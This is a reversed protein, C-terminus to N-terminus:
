QKVFPIIKKVDEYKVELFYSAKQSLDYPIFIENSGQKISIDEAKYVVRGRQDIIAYSFTRDKTSVILLDNDNPGPYTTILLDTNIAICTKNNSLNVDMLNTNVNTAEICLYDEKDPHTIPIRTSLTYDIISSPLLIGEWRESIPIVHNTNIILDMSTVVNNGLNIMRVKQQYMKGSPYTMANSSLNTLMIDTSSPKLILIKSVSASCLNQISSVLTIKFEGNSTFNKNPEFKSSTDGEGLNWLYNNAFRSNNKISIEIPANGYDPSIDFSAIPKSIIKITKYATDKCGNKTEIQLELKIKGTDVPHIKPNKESYSRLNDITWIYKDITDKLDSISNQSMHILPALCADGTTIKASPKSIINIKKGISDTCGIANTVKLYASYQGSNKYLHKANKSYEFSSSDGFYWKSAIISFSPTKDLFLISDTICYNQIDFNVNIAPFIEVTTFFTDKCNNKSEISLQAPYIGPLAFRMQAHKTNYATDVIDWTWKNEVDAIDYSSINSFLSNTLACPNAFQFKAKPKQFISVVKITEGYCGSDSLVGLKVSILGSNKYIVKPNKIYSSDFTSFKWAWNVISGGLATSSDYMETIAGACNFKYGFNVTPVVGKVSIKVTDIAKCGNSNTILINYTKTSSIKLIPSTDGNDWVLSQYPINLATSRYFFDKCLSTDKGLNFKSSFSDVQLNVTDSYLTCTSQYVLKCFYTGPKNITIFSDVKGNSWVFTADSKNYKTDLVVSDGSCISYSANFKLGKFLYITDSYDRGLSTVKVWAKKTCPPLIISDINSAGTSWKTSTNTPSFPLKLKLSTTSTTLDNGIFPITSYKHSTYSEVKSIQANTLETNFIMIDTIYGNFGTGDYTRGAINTFNIINQTFGNTTQPTSNIFIKSKTLTFNMWPYPIPSPASPLLLFNLAGNYYFSGMYYTGGSASTFIGQYPPGGLMFNDANTILTKHCLLITYNGGSLAITSAMNLITKINNSRGFKVTNYSNNLVIGKEPFSSTTSAVVNSKVDKWSQVDTGSVTVNNDGNWWNRLGYGNMLDLVEIQKTSSWIQTTDKIRYYYFEGAKLNPINFYVGSVGSYINSTAFTALSSVEITSLGIQNKWTVRVSGTDAILPSPSLIVVQASSYLFPFIFVLILVFRMIESHILSLPIFFKEFCVIDSILYKKHNDRKVQLSHRV